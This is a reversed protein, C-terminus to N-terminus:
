TGNCFVLEADNPLKVHWGQPPTELWAPHGKDVMLGLASNSIRLVMELANNITRVDYRQAPRSLVHHSV